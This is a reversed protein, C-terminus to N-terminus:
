KWMGPETRFFPLDFFGAANQFVIKELTGRSVESRELVKLERDWAYPINPFDSGYMIRDPRYCSLDITERLPFYDTIVMATDLWLNDYKEIMRRYEATEDFGLHPVCIKLEPFEKVVTETKGASCIEYPDCRYAPSKPERGAHIVLPKCNERCCEYLPNMYDADMDFCQVHAHLKLGKLGSDFAEQLIEEANEEGPYVTAMGTVRGKFQTCKEGMYRNLQRAIGPKHAYQFAVVHFIGRSLLFDILQSTKMQYRIQWANTDFWKHIASFLDWPFIHVHSDVVRPFGAPVSEGQRDRILPKVNKLM